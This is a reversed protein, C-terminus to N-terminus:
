GSIQPLNKAMKVFMDKLHTPEVVLWYIIVYINKKQPPPTIYCCNLKGAGGSEREVSSELMLKGSKPHGGKKRDRSMTM